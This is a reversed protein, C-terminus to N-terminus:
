SAMKNNRHDGEDESSSLSLSSYASSFDVDSAGVMARAKRSRGDKKRPWRDDKHENKHKQGCRSKYKGDRSSQHKYDDKNEMM